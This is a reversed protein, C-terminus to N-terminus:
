RAVIESGSAGAFHREALEARVSELYARANIGPTKSAVFKRSCHTRAARRRYRLHSLTPAIERGDRTECIGAAVDADFYDAVATATPARSCTRTIAASELRSARRREVHLRM